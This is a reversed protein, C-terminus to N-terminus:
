GSSEALFADQLSYSHGGMGDNQNEMHKKYYVYGGAAGGILVLAFFWKFFHGGKKKGGGSNHDDDDDTGQGKHPNEKEQGDTALCQMPTRQACAIPDGCHMCAFCVHPKQGTVYSECLAYLVNQATAGGWLFARDHNVLVTPSKIIGAEKQKQLSEALWSNEKDTDAGADSDKMCSEIDDSKIGSHTYADAICEDSAFYAPNEIDMCYKYFHWLYSWFTAGSGDEDKYHNQICMRRLIEHVIEHGPIGHRSIHCYRGGNTCLGFCSSENKNKDVADHVCGVDSGDLLMAHAGFNLMSHGNDDDKFVHELVNWDQFFKITHYSVPDHWFDLSVKYDYQPTHWAMEVVVTHNKELLGLLENGIKKDVLMSPIGVDSGSGDDAMTKPLHEHGENHLDAVVVAAAGLQQQAKRVKHVFTCSGGREVMLIFPPQLKLEKIDTDTLTDCLTLHKKSPIRVPLVLSGEQMELNYHPGFMAPRHLLSHNRNLHHPIQINFYSSSNRLFRAEVVPITDTVTAVVLLAVVLVTMMM